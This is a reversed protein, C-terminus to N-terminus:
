NLLGITLNLVSAFSVWALYPIFLLASVRDFRWTTLIFALISVWMLSIVIFAPWILQLGFWIPSWMWNLVMQAIWIRMAPHSRDKLFIRAGAIGIMVYLATWVPGFIWNPPNFPPKELGEYWTGPQAQTGILGGVGVVLAIFGIYVLWPPLSRHRPATETTM